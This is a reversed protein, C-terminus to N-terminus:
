TDAHSSNVGTNAGLEEKLKLLEARMKQSEARESEIRRREAALEARQKEQEAQLEALQEAKYRRFLRISNIGQLLILLLFPLLICVIYGPTTKLFQFFKGVGPLRGQYKGLVFSYTVM